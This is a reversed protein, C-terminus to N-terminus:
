SLKPVAGNNTWCHWFAVFAMYNFKSSIKNYVTVGLLIELFPSLFFLFSFFLFTYVLFFIEVQLTEM